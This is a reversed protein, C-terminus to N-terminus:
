VPSYASAQHSSQSWWEPAARGKEWRAFRAKEARYFVRYAIVTDPNRYQEPMCQVHPTLPGDPVAGLDTNAIVAASAHVKGYRRTYEGCLAMGHDRLWEANERTEGAWLVCPHRAHTPKYRAPVGYRHAVSCLIQATELAMKVVHRDCLSQAARSPCRDVAFINM